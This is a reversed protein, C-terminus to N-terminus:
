VFDPTDETGDFEVFKDKYQGKAMKEIKERRPYLVEFAAFAAFLAIFPSLYRLAKQTSIGFLVGLAFVFLECWAFDRYDFDEALDSARDYWKRLHRLISYM